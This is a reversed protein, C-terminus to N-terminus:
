SIRYLGFPSSHSFKTNRKQKSQGAKDNLVVRIDTSFNESQTKLLVISIIILLHAVSKGTIKEFPQDEQDTTRLRKERMEGKLWESM